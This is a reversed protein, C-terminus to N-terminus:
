RSILAVSDPREIGFADNCDGAAIVEVALNNAVATLLSAYIMQGSHTNLSVAYKDQLAQEVCAPISHAKLEALSFIVTSNEVNLYNVQSDAMSFSSFLLGFSLFIKKNM